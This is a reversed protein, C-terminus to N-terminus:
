VEEEEPSELLEEPTVIIPTLRHLAVNVERLRRIV